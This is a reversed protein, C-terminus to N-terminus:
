VKSIKIRQQLTSTLENKEALQYALKRLHRTRPGLLRSQMAQLKQVVVEEEEEEEEEEEKQVPTFISKFNGVSLVSVPKFGFKLL